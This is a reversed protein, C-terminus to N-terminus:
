VIGGSSTQVRFYMRSFDAPKKFFRRSSALITKLSRDPRIRLPKVDEGFLFSSRRGSPTGSAGSQQSIQLAPSPLAASKQKKFLAAVQTLPASPKKQLLDFQTNPKQSSSCKRASVVSQIMFNAACTGGEASRCFPAWRRM